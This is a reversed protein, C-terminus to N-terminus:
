KKYINLDRFKFFSSGSVSRTSIRYLFSANVRPSPITVNVFQEAVTPALTSSNYIYINTTGNNYYIVIPTDILNNEGSYYFSIRASDRDTFNLTSSSVTSSKTSLGSGSTFVSDVTVSALLVEGTVPPTVPNDDDSSCGTIVALSLLLVLFLSKLM